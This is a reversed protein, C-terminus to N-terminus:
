KRRNLHYATRVMEAIAKATTEDLNKDARLHAEIIEPTTPEATEEEKARKLFQDPDAGIWDCLRLYSEMDPVKGNEIRSLTSASIEGIEKAAERLSNSARKAKLMATFASMDLYSAM